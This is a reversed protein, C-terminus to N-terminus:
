EFIPEGQRVTELVEGFIPLARAIMAENATLSIRFYGPMEFVAGPLCFVKREVLLKVFAEDDVLPSKVLLYFTGEPARTEYGQALLEKVMWDRKRQYQAMDISVRELDPISYQLLANPFAYGTLVQAGLLALRMEERRPMKPPLAIYGMRQGPTLLQKGYTYILFSNSYYTTPSYFPKNDFVIRHYAEDSLLYITRGNKESAANLVWALKLLTEPPYIRGTPNNPSNVIIARTRPTIAAAIADMDLDFKEPDIKVRVPKASYSLILSEYFFWPPSNFIVEDGPNTVAALTVALGAFAGNTLCIDDAEFAEGRRERLAAAVAARASPESTKYAFWDKDHPVVWKQLTQVFNTLPMEQPNGFGFDSVEPDDLRKMWVPDMQIRLFPAISNLSGAIRDSFLQSNM